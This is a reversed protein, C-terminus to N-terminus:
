DLGLAAANQRKWGPDNHGLPHHRPCPPGPHGTCAANVHEVRQPTATPRKHIIVGTIWGDRALSYNSEDLARPGVFPIAHTETASHEVIAIWRGATPAVRWGIGPGPDVIEFEFGFQAALRALWQDASEGWRRRPVWERPRKILVAVADRFCTGPMPGPVIPFRAKLEAYSVGSALLKTATM